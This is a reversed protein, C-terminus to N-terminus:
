EDEGLSGSAAGVEDQSAEPLFFHEESASRGTRKATVVIRNEWSGIPDGSTLTLASYGKTRITDWNDSPVITTNEYTYTYIIGDYILYFLDGDKLEDLKLFPSGYTDRYGAICVNSGEEEYPMQTYEYLGPGKELNQPDTGNQIITDLQLAPIVLRLKGDQYNRRGPSIWLKGTPFSNFSTGPQITEQKPKASSSSGVSFGSVTQSVEDVDISVNDELKTASIAKGLKWRSFGDFYLFCYLLLLILGIAILILVLKKIFQKRFM